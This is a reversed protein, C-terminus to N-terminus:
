SIFFCITAFKGTSFNWASSSLHTLWDQRSLVETCPGYGIIRIPRRQSEKKLRGLVEELMGGMFPTYLFFVTGTRYDASRADAASFYVDGLGLEAASNWAYDCFAPEVEVGRAPIGTLLNMLLVVQGLGCGLDFFVDDEAFGIEKVWEFVLRAPTKHYEIMGPELERTPAPMDRDSFLRNIFVDLHDYGLEAGEVEVYEEVRTKFASKRCDGNRIDMRLKRFLLHDIEQLETRLKEVRQWLAYDKDPLDLQYTELWELLEARAVFNTEERLSADKEVLELQMKM